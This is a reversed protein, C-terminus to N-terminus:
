AYTDFEWQMRRALQAVVIDWTEGVQSGKLVCLLCCFTPEQVTNRRHFGKPASWRVIGQLGGQPRSERHVSAAEDDERGQDQRDNLRAGNDQVAQLRM